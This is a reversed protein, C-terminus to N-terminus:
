FDGTLSIRFLREMDLTPLSFSTVSYPTIVPANTGLGFVGYEARLVTSVNFRYDMSAYFNHHDRFASEVYNSAILHPVDIQSSHTYDAFFSLKKTAQLAASVGQHNINDDIGTAFKYGNQAFHFTLTLNDNPKYIFRERFVTYYEYPPVAGFPGQGYLFNTLRDTLIGDIRDNANRFTGNLLGRPFDPIDNTVEVFGEATWQDNYIMQVAGSYTFRSPDKDAPIAVNQYTLSSPDEFGIFYYSSIFPEINPTTKPLGHWRFMGKATIYPNFKYTIEDRLVTEKYATNETKHVNRIDFLNKFKDEFWKEKWQMRVVMRNVDVGDGIRFPELDPSIEAFTLHKGWYDDDRTDTYRSLVPDFDKDMQTYSLLFDTHGKTHDFNSNLEAKYAFGERNSQYRQDNLLDRERYSGAMESKISTDKTIDYKFDVGLVQSRDTISNDVLGNRFTYTGGLMFRDTAQHKIRIAGPINNNDLYHEDWPSYPSAITAAIYTAKDEINAEFSVGKLLVLRNGESDTALFSLSDSYYGRKVSGDSFFQIPVYNYLWPSQQWYDKHNSLGLPDDSTLAQSQDALAFVRAHWQEQTYDMWMKRFPRFEYDIDLEPINFPIGGTAPNFDYFGRVTTRVTHGDQVEILPFGVSDGVNTRYVENLVANYAGFYKLNYRIEENGIASRQVQEGTTGVWSWPDAVIQTYFNLKETPAFSVNLLYQQYIAPDFTNNLDEGFLYRFNRDQLDAHAENLTTHADDDIGASLRYRGSMKVFGGPLAKMTDKTKAAGGGPIEMGRNPDQNPDYNLYEEPMRTDPPLSKRSQSLSADDLFSPKDAIKTSPVLKSDPMLIYTDEPLAASSASSTPTSSFLAKKDLIRPDRAGDKEYNSSGYDAQCIAAGGVLFFLTLFFQRKKIDVLNRM